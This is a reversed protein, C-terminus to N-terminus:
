KDVGAFHWSEGPPAIKGKDSISLSNLDIDVQVTPPQDEEDDSIDAWDQDRSPANASTTTSTVMM